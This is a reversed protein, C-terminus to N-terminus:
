KPSRGPQLLLPAHLDWSILVRSGIPLVQRAESPMEAKLPEAIGNVAVQYAHGSGRYAFDQVVGPLGDNLSNGIPQIRITEPRVVISAAGPSLLPDNVRLKLTQTALQVVAEGNGISLIKVPLVNANGVFRAAFASAPTRYIDDPTGVQEIKGKNLVVIRDSLALAERQDHTVYMFIAGVERHLRRLEEEMELRIALDLASLPEDLLLVRPRLILVRALAVRQVQGGSLEDSRRNDFSQLRVLALAKSVKKRVEEEDVGLLRLGFAVNEAVSLHPFLTSRQFVTNTPRRHPPVGTLDQGDLLVRGESPRVFGGIIRLLTTKGCGSPGLLTLFEGQKLSLNIDHLVGAGGYFHSVGEIRLEDAGAPRM